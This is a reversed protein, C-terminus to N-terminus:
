STDQYVELSSNIVDLEEKLLHLNTQVYDVENMVKVKLRRDNVARFASPVKVVLDRRHKSTM